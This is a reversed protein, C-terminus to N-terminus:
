HQRHHLPREVEAGRRIQVVRQVLLARVHRQGEGSLVVLFRRLGEELLALRVEDAPLGQSQLISWFFRVGPRIDPPRSPLPAPHALYGHGQTRRATAGPPVRVNRAGNVANRCCPSGISGHELCPNKILATWLERESACRGRDGVPNASPNPAFSHATCHEFNSRQM